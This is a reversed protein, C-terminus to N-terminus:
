SPAPPGALEKAKLLSEYRKRAWERRVGFAASIEDRRAQTQIREAALAKDMTETPTLKDSKDSNCAICALARNRCDDNTGDYKNPEIHDLQLFRKDEAYQVGCYWCATGWEAVFARWIQDGSELPRQRFRTIEDLNSRLRLPKAPAGGDTRKPLDNPGFVRLTDSGGFRPSADEYDEREDEVTMGLEPKKAFQRRIITWARPSMDCAIWRRGSEEAAVPVYACGAFCDLVIDGPNSSAEIIRRALAQPKQTPYGTKEKSSGVLFPIDTWISGLPAGKYDDAYVRRIIKGNDIVINGKDYEEQMRTQSLRWGEPGKNRFGMFEYCLNPRAGQSPRRYLEGSKNYRRGEDDFLPFKENLDSESLERYPSVWVKASKAYFLITDSNAGYRRPQHQSSKGGFAREWTIENRFNNHGFIADMMQRLYANADHDCHLYVSGTPKLVRRLEIVRQAMFAIYAATSESHTRRTAEILWWVPTDKVSDWWDASMVRRFKWIERFLAIKGDADPYELGLEHASDVDTVGWTALMEREQTREMGSLKPKLNGEFGQKKNKGFPPDIVVLDVSESDLSQLFPLNDSIFVTRNLDDTNPM